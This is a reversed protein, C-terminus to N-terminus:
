DLCVLIANVVASLPFKKWRCHLRRGMSSSRCDRPKLATPSQFITHRVAVAVFSWPTSSNLECSFLPQCGSAPKYNCHGQRVHPPSREAKSLWGRNNRHFLWHIRKGGSRRWRLNEGAGVFVILQYAQDVLPRKYKDQRRGFSACNSWGGSNRFNWWARAIERGTAELDRWPFSITCTELSAIHWRPAKCRCCFTSRTTDGFCALWSLDFSGFRNQLRSAALRIRNYRNYM